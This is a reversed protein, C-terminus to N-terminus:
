DYQRTWISPSEEHINTKNGRVQTNEMLLESYVYIPKKIYRLVGYENGTIESDVLSVISDDKIATGTRNSILRVRAVNAVSGEGISIGKDGNDEMICDTITAWSGCLDVGDGGRSQQFTSNTITGYSWDSDLSDSRSNRITLGTIDYTTNNLHLGDESEFDVLETDTIVLSTKMFTLGGTFQVDGFVGSVAQNMKVHRFESTGSASVVAVGLWDESGEAPSLTVPKEATGIAHIPSYSLIGANHTFRLSTGPELELVCGSPINVIGSIVTDRNKFRITKTSDVELVGQKVLEAITLQTPPIAAEWEKAKFAIEAISLFKPDDILIRYYRYATSNPLTYRFWDWGKTEIATKDVFLRAINTWGAQGILKNNGQFVAHDHDWFQINGKRPLIALGEVTVPERFDFTIWHVSSESPHKVHWYTDINGDILSEKNEWPQNFSSVSIVVSAPLQNYGRPQPLEPLEVPLYVDYPEHIIIRRQVDDASASEALENADTYTWTCSGRLDFEALICNPRSNDSSGDLLGQLAGTWIMPSGLESKNQNTRPNAAGLTVSSSEIRSTREGLEWVAHISYPIWSNASTDIWQLRALELSIEQQSFNSILLKLRQGGQIEELSLPLIVIDASLVESRAVMTLQEDQAPLKSVLINRNAPLPYISALTVLSTKDLLSVFDNFRDTPIMVDILPVGSAPAESQPQFLSRELALLRQTAGQTLPYPNRDKPSEAISLPVVTPFLRSPPLYWGSDDDGQMTATSNDAIQAYDPLRLRASFPSLNYLSVIRTGPAARPAPESPDVSVLLASKDVLVPIARLTLFQRSTTSDVQQKIWDAENEGYIFSQSSSPLPRTNADDLFPLAAVFASHMRTILRRQFAEDCAYVLYQDFLERNEPMKIFQNISPHTGALNLSWSTVTFPGTRIDTPFVKPNYLSGEGTLRLGLWWSTHILLSRQGFQEEPSTGANIDRMVPEPSDLYPNRYFRFDGSSTGHTAHFRAMLALSKAFAIQNVGAAFKNSYEVTVPIPKVELLGTSLPPDTLIDGRVIVQGDYRQVGAFFGQSNPTEILLYLGLSKGNLSAHVLLYRPVFLGEDYMISFIVHNLLGEQTRISYLKFQSMGFLLPGTVVRGTFSPTESSFHVQDGLGAAWLQAVCHGGNTVLDATVRKFNTTDVSDQTERAKLLAARQVDWSQFAAESMQIDLTPIGRINSLTFKPQETTRTAQAALKFNEGLRGKTSVVMKYLGGPLTADVSGSTNKWYGLPRELCDFLTLELPADDSDSDWVINLNYSTGTQGVRIRIGSRNLISPIITAVSSILPRLDATQTDNVEVDWMYDPLAFPDSTVDIGNGQLRSVEREIINHGIERLGPVTVLLVTILLLVSLSAILQVFRSHKAFM